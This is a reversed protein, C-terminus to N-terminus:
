RDVLYYGKRAQVTFALNKARVEIRRYSGPQADAPAYFGLVYQNRLEEGIAAFVPDLESAAEPTHDRGGTGQSLLYLTHEGGIDRGAESRIPVVVISYIVAEAEQAVRLAQHFSVTSTTDGGDTILVMVRRGPQKRLEEAALLVADYLSTGGQARVARLAQEVRAASATFPTVQTVTENFAFLALRDQPRLISRIFRAASEQEFKLDKATSGSIDLLLAVSLPLDAERGFFYIPRAQGEDRVEFDERSLERVLGGRADRVTALVNVLRVTVRLSTEQAAASVTLLLTLVLWVRM